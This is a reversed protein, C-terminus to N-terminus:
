KSENYYKELENLYKEMNYITNNELETLERDSRQSKYASIKAKQQMIERECEQKETLRQEQRNMGVVFKTETHVEDEWRKGNLWTAPHPIYKPDSWNKKQEKLALMIKNFLEKDPKIKEFAKIANHKGIKRPYEKYFINFYESISDSVSVSVSLPTESKNCQLLKSRKQFTESKKSRYKKVRETSSDSHYQREDWKPIDYNETIIGLSVFEKQTKQLEDISIRLAGSLQVDNLGPIDGNGKLCLFMIFRRQLTESMAQVKPDFAFECYRRFWPLGNPM